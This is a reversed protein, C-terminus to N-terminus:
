EEIALADADAGNEVAWKLAEHDGKVSAFYAVYDGMPAGYYFLARVTKFLGQEACEDCATIAFGLDVGSRGLELLRKIEARDM